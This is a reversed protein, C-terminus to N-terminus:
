ANGILVKWTKADEGVQEIFMLEIEAGFETYAYVRANLVKTNNFVVVDGKKPFQAFNFYRLHKIKNTKRDFVLLKSTGRILPPKQAIFESPLNYSFESLRL